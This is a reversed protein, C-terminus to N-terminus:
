EIRELLPKAETVISARVLGSLALADTAWKHPRGEGALGFGLESVMEEAIAVAAALPHVPHKGSPAHHSRVVYGVDSPLRWLACLTAGGEEHVEEIAPWVSEFPPPSSGRTRNAALAILSAAIGADHLLGCLFAYEDYLSTHRCVLRAVHATATSHRRLRNMPEDYGPARFVKSAVAVGFFIDRVATLGLRIIAEHLSRVPTGRAHLASQAHNLVSAAILADQELLNVIEKIEVDSRRSLALLEIAVKPLVPPVYGPTRFVRLLQERLDQSSLLEVEALSPSIPDKAVDARRM